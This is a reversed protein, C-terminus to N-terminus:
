RRNREKQSKATPEINEIRIRESFRRGGFAPSIDIFVEMSPVFAKPIEVTFEATQASNDINWDVQRFYRLALPLNPFNQLIVRGDLMSDVVFFDRQMLPKRIIRYFEQRQRDFIGTYKLTISIGADVFDTLNDDWRFEFVTRLLYHNDAELDLARIDLRTEGAPAFLSGIYLFLGAIGRFFGM